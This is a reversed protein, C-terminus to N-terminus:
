KRERGTLLVRFLLTMQLMEMLQFGGVPLWGSGGGAETWDTNVVGSAYSSALKFDLDWALQYGTYSNAAVAGLLAAAYAAQAQQMGTLMDGSTQDTFAGAHDM